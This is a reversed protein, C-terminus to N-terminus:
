IYFILVRVLVIDGFRFFKYMEVKDKEIVRVDEKRIIGKFFEKLFIIEVGFIVVKCFRLNISM